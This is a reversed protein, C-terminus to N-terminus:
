CDVRNTEQGPYGHSRRWRLCFDRTGRRAGAVDHQWATLDGCIRAGRGVSEWWVHSLDGQQQLYRLRRM